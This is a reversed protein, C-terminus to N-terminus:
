VEATIDLLPPKKDGGKISSIILQSGIQTQVVKGSAILGHIAQLYDNYSYSNFVATYLDAKKISGHLDVIQLLRHAARAEPANIYSFILNMNKEV